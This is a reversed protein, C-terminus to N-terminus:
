FVNLPDIDITWGHLPGVATLVEALSSSLPQNCDPIHLLLHWRYRKRLRQLFAPAPGIISWDTLNKRQLIQQLHEALRTATREATTHSPNAYVFRVLRSFPPYATQHRFSIEERYFAHYNHEQAARLAYHEPTYTQIIVRADAARRGARGAVQTLLQFTREASRFDPLYLGTDAAVVGVVSVAPLDLGRAIMQTGILVDVEHRLLKDLMRSHAGKGSVTDRDWRLVRAHPFLHLVEQEVRQTGIGFSKIRPSLCQPCFAPVLAHYSCSHCILTPVPHPDAAPTTSQETYHVVLPNHCTPCTVVTGCDRCMVFNAAGRRNLFLLAQQQNDLAQTLAEYLPQSFISRNDHQLERRMDVLRVHPMPLTRSRPLGDHSAITGVREPLVLLTAHGQQAAYYSEICPTASGLLVVSGTLKGLAMAVDRAHYRPHDDQKYSPEHEEDIIILGPKTLPAFVASRSGIVLPAEGSRIRRWEDYREGISLESHLIALQGPFRAAFRRVLQATLAIEPVLVLVQYGLRLTRAVARLYIETKGSGTVGHLLFIPSPSPPHAEANDKVSTDIPAATTRHKDGTVAGEDVMGRQAQFAPADPMRHPLTDLAQSIPQWVQRQGATLSPSSDPSIDEALLPNRYVEVTQLEIINKKELARLDALQTGTAAYIKGVAILPSQDPTLPQRNDTTTNEPTPQHPSADILWQVIAQQRTARKLNDLTSQYAEPPICLRAMREKRPRVRPKTHEIGQEILGRNQLHTCTERLKKSQITMAHYLSTESTEGHKRLYYLVAREYEPLGGLETTLGPPTVRWTPTAKQAVGPPLLLALVDALPLLFTIAIQKALLIGTAPIIAHPAAIDAINRLNPPPLTTTQTISLVIGQIIQSHLPVWVLQGPQITEELHSPIRYSFIASTRQKITRNLAVEAISCPPQTM